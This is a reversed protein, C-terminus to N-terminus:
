EVSAAGRTGGGTREIRSGIGKQIRAGPRSQMMTSSGKVIRDEPGYPNKRLSPNSLTEGKGKNRQEQNSGVERQFDEPVRRYEELRM